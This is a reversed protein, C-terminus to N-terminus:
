RLGKKKLYEDVREVYDTQLFDSECEIFKDLNTYNYNAVQNDYQLLNSYSLFGKARIQRGIEVNGGTYLDYGYQFLKAGPLAKFGDIDSAKSIYPHVAIDINEYQYETALSVSSGTYLMVQGTMGCKKIIRVLKAVPADKIDLNIYIKDKCALLAQELTPVKVTNGNADKYVVGNKRMDYKAIEAYTLDSVNGSGTTSANISANHMLVLINDKTPRVDLEVMDAGYKIAAEIGPISNDPINNLTGYYTNARHAVIFIKDRPTGDKQKAIQADFLEMLTMRPEEQEQPNIPTPEDGGGDVGKCSALAYICLLLTSLVITLKKM